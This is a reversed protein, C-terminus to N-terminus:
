FPVPCLQVCFLAIHPGVFDVSVDGVGGGLKNSSSYDQFLFNDIIAQNNAKSLSILDQSIYMTRSLVTLFINVESFATLSNCFGAILSLCQCCNIVDVLTVMKHRKLKRIIILINVVKGAYIMNINQIECIKFCDETQTSRFNLFKFIFKVMISIMIFHNFLFNIILTISNMKLYIFM